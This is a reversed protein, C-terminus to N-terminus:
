LTIVFVFCCDITKLLVYFLSSFFQSFLDKLLNKNPFIVKQNSDLAQM